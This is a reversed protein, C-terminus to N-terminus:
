PRGPDYAAAATAVTPRMALARDRDRAERVADELGSWAPGGGGFRARLFGALAVLQADDLTGRFGPMIPAREGTSAPLGNLVVNLLNQPTPGTVGTSLALHLGGFPLARGAEHCTACAAAYIAAGQGNGADGAAATQSDGTTPRTGAGGGTGLAQGLAAEARRQKEAPPTGMGAVVYAAIARTDAAPVSALNGTVPAM